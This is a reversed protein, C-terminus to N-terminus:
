NATPKAIFGQKGDSNFGASRYFQLTAQDKRGTLLMVKYCNVSWAHALAAALVAKGYGRQRHDAHTVVNEILGYPRCSRTLNPIVSVTCSSVLKDGLFGGFYRLRPNALIESWIADVEPQPPLPSDAAHLDGYLALLAPLESHTLPRIDM